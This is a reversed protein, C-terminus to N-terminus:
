SVGLGRRTRGRRPDDPDAAELVADTEDLGLDLDTDSATGSDAAEAAPSTDEALWDSASPAESCAALM